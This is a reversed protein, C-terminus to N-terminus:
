GNEAHSIVLSVTPLGHISWACRPGQREDVRPDSTVPVEAEAQNRPVIGRLRGGTQAKCSSVHCPDDQAFEDNQRFTLKKLFM